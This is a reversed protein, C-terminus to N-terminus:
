RRVRAKARRLVCTGAALQSRSDCVLYTSPDPDNPDVVFTAAAMTGPEPLLLVSEAWAPAALMMGVAIAIMGKRVDLEGDIQLGM